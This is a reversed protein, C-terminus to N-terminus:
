PAAEQPLPDSIPLLVVTRFTNASGNVEVSLAPGGQNKAPTFNLIVEVARPLRGVEQSDWSTYWTMGDLYRFQIGIVEPALVQNTSLTTAAGGNDEIMQTALRDGETRVLGTVAGTAATGAVLGTGGVSYTVVRLDSTRNQIKNGDFAASFELDRRARSIHMEVLQASGRIGMSTASPEEETTQSSGSTDSGSSLSSAASSMSSSISSSASDSDSVPPPVFAISRLDLAIKRLLARALQSRLMEERGSATLKWTQDMAMFVAGLLLVSLALSLLVELLTFASRPATLVPPRSKM